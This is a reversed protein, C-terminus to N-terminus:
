STRANKQPFGTMAEDVAPCVADVTRAASKPASTQFVRGIPNLNPSYNPLFFLKADAPRMLQRGLKSEPAWLTRSWSIAPGFRRCFFGRSAIGFARAM